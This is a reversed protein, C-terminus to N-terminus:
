FRRGSAVNLLGPSSLPLGRVSPLLPPSLAAAPDDPCFPLPLPPPVVALPQSLFAPSPLSPGSFCPPVQADAFEDGRDAFVHRAMITTRDRVRCQEPISLAVDPLAPAHWPSAGLEGSRLFSAFASHLMELRRTHDMGPQQLQKLLNALAASPTM